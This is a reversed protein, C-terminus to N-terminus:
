PFLISRIKRCCNGKTRVSISISERERFYRQAYGPYRGRAQVELFLENQHNLEMAAIVDAPQPTLPYSPMALVM